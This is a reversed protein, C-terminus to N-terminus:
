DESAAPAPSWLGLYRGLTAFGALCALADLLGRAVGDPGDSAAFGAAALLFFIGAALLGAVRWPHGRLGDLAPPVFPGLDDFLDGAPGPAGPRLRAAASAPAACALLLVLGVGSCSVALVVWWGAVNHRLLIALLGLSVMSVAGALLAVVVRRLLIVGEARSIVRAERRWLARLLALLGAAFAIQTALIVAVGALRALWSVRGPLAGFAPAPALVFVVGFLVGAVGLASFSLLAARRVRSTGLEDAFQRALDTPRGLEAVPDSRLHDEFENLIRLRLRGTIGVAGLERGLDQLYSM